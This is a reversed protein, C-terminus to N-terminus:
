QGIVCRVLAGYHATLAKQPDCLASLLQRVVRAQLTRHALGFRSCV